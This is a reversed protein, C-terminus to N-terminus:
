SSIKQGIYLSNLFAPYQIEGLHSIIKVPFEYGSAITKFGARTFIFELAEKSFRFYDAPYSHLWFTQHTQVFVYGKKKLFFNINNAARFPDFLHEFTSCSIVANFYAKFGLDQMTLNMEALNVPLTECLNFLFDVDKGNEFDSGLFESAHPAWDKHMTSINENSRKTGLELVKPSKIEALKDIFLQSLNVMIKSM